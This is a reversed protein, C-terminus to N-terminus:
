LHVSSFFFSLSNKHWGFLLLLLLLKGLTVGAASAPWFLVLATKASAAAHFSNFISSSVTGSGFLL